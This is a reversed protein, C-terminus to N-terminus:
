GPPASLYVKSTVRSRSRSWHDNANPRPLAQLGNRNRPVPYIFYVGDDDLQPEAVELTVLMKCGDCDWM